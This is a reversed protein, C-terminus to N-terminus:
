SLLSFFSFLAHAFDNDTVSATSPEFRAGGTQRVCELCFEANVGFEDDAIGTFERDPNAGFHDRFFAPEAEGVFVIDNVGHLRFYHLTFPSLFPTCGRKRKM